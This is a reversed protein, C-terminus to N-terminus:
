TYFWRVRWYKIKKIDKNIKEYTIKNIKELIYQCYWIMM